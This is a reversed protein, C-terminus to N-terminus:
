ANVWILSLDNELCDDQDNAKNCLEKALETDASNDLYGVCWKCPHDKTPDFEKSIQIYRFGNHTFEKPM